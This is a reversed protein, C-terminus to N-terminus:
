ANGEQTVIQANKLGVSKLYVAGLDMDSREACHNCIGTVMMASSPKGYMVALPFALAFTNPMVEPPGIFEHDCALCLMGTGPQQRKFADVLWRMIGSFINYQITDEFDTAVMVHAARRVIMVAMGKSEGIEQELKRKIAETGDRARKRKAQGM